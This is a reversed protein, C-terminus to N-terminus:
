ADDFSETDDGKRGNSLFKDMFSGSRSLGNWDEPGAVGFFSKKPPPKSRVSYVIRYHLAELSQKTETRKLHSAGSDEIASFIRKVREALGDVHANFDNEAEKDRFTPTLRGLDIAINLLSTIAGLGSYDYGGSNRAKHHKVDFRHDRLHRTIRKLDLVNDASEELPSADRIFFATALRCRLLAIWSTTPLIHKLLQSQFSVDQVTNFV